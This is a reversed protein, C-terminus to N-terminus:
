FPLDGGMIIRNLAETDQREKVKRADSYGNKMMDIDYDDM